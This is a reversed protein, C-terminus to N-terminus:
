VSCYKTELSCRHKSVEHSFSLSLTSLHEKTLLSISAITYGYDADLGAITEEADAVIDDEVFM